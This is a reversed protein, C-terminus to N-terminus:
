IHIHIFVSYFRNLRYLTIKIYIVELSVVQYQSVLKSARGQPLSNKRNGANRPQGYNKANLQSEMLHKRERDM